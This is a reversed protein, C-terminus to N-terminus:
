ASRQRSRSKRKVTASATGFRRRYWVEVNAGVRCYGIQANKSAIRNWIFAVKWPQNDNRRLAPGPVLGLPSNDVMKLDHGNGIAALLATATTPEVGPIRMLRKGREDARALQRLMSAGTWSIMVRLPPAPTERRQM